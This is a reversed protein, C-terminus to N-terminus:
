ASAWPPTEDFVLHFALTEDVVSGVREDSARRPDWGYFFGMAGANRLVGRTVAIAQGRDGLEVATAHYTRGGVLLAARPRARLNYVWGAHRGFGALLGVGESTPVYNLPVERRQGSRAGVTLLVCLRGGLTTDMTGGLLAFLPLMIRDSLARLLWHLIRMQATVEEDDHDLAGDM